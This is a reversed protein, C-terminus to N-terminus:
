FDKKGEPPASGKKGAGPAPPTPRPPTPQGKKGGAPAPPRPPTKDRDHGKSDDVAKRQGTDRRRRETDKRKREEETYFTLPTRAQSMHNRAYTEFENNTVWEPWPDTQFNSIFQRALEKRVNPSMKQHHWSRLIVIHKHLAAKWEPVELLSGQSQMYLHINLKLAELSATVMAKDQPDVGLGTFTQTLFVELQLRRVEAITPPCQVLLKWGPADQGDKMIGGEPNLGNMFTAINGQLFTESPSESGTTMSHLDDDDEPLCSFVVKPEPGSSDQEPSRKTTEPKPGEIVLIPAGYEFMSDGAQLSGDQPLALPKDRPIWSPGTLVHIWAVHHYKKDSQPDVSQICVGTVVSYKNPDKSPRSKEAGPRLMIVVGDGIKLLNATSRITEINKPDVSADPVPMKVAAEPLAKLHPLALIEQLRQAKTSM